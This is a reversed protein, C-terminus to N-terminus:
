LASECSHFCMQIAHNHNWGIELPVKIDLCTGTSCTQLRYVELKLFLCGTESLLIIFRCSIDKIIIAVEDFFVQRHIIGWFSFDVVNKLM